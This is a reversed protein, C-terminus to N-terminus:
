RSHGRSSLCVKPGKSTDEVSYGAESVESRLRDSKAYDRSKRAKEREAVLKAINEPIPLPQKVRGSLKLGLVKDFELILSIASKKDIEGKNSASV